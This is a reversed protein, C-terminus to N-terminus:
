SREERRYPSPRPVDRTSIHRPRPMDRTSGHHPTPIESTNGGNPQYVLQAPTTAPTIAVPAFTSPVIATPAIVGPAITAPANVACASAARKLAALAEKNKNERITEQRISKEKESLLMDCMEEVHTKLMHNTSLTKIEIKCNPCKALKQKGYEFRESEEKKWTEICSKCYSHGCNTVTAEVLIDHCITCKLNLVLDKMNRVKMLFDKLKNQTETQNVM